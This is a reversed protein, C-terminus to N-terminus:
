ENIDGKTILSSKSLKSLLKMLEQSEENTLCNKVKSEWDDMILYVDERIQEAKETLELNYARRDNEKKIRKVYGEDELKKIARATTAKDLKLRETLEEQTIGSHKYLNLLFLYQGSGIGFRNFKKSFYIGSARHIEGIYKGIHQCGEM